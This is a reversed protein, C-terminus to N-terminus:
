ERPRWSSWSRMIKVWVYFANRIRGGEGKFAPGTIGGLINPEAFRDGAESSRIVIYFCSGLM